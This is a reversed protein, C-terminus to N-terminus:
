PKCAFVAYGGIGAGDDLATKHAVWVVAVRTGTAAIAIPGDHASKPIRVDAALDVRRLIQPTSSLAGDIVAVALSDQQELAVFVRNQAAAADLAFLQTTKIATFGGAFAPQMSGGLDYGRIAVTEGQAQGDTLLFARNQLATLATVTAPVQDVPAGLATPDTTPSALYVRAVTGGIGADGVSPGDAEVALAQSARVVRAAVDQPTGFGTTTQAFVKTGDTSLLTADGSVNAALLFRGTTAAVDLAHTSLAVSPASANLFVNRKLVTGSTDLPFLEFGSQGTGGDDVCAPRSLVVLGGKGSMALGAADIKTQGGCHGDLTEQTPALAGGGADIPQVTLQTTGDVSLYEEYAILFGGSALAVIAPATVFPGGDLPDPLPGAGVLTMSCGAGANPDNGSSDPVCRADTCVLGSACATADPSPADNLSVLVERTKSVDTTSCGEAIVGCDARRVVAAFGYTATPIDGLPIATDTASYAVRAALGSPPLGGALEADSPCGNPFAGIEIWAANSQADSPLDLVLSVNPPDCGIALSGVAGFLAVSAVLRNM